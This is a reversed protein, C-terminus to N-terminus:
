ILPNDPSRSVNTSPPGWSLELFSETCSHGFMWVIILTKSPTRIHDVSVWVDQVCVDKFPHRNDHVDRFSLKFMDERWVEQRTTANLAHQVAHTLEAKEDSATCLNLDPVSEQNSSEIRSGLKSTELCEIIHADVCLGGIQYCRNQVITFRKGGSIVAQTLCLVYWSFAIHLCSNVNSPTHTCTNSWACFKSSCGCLHKCEHIRLDTKRKAKICKTRQTKSPFM